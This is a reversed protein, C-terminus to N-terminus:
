TGYPSHRRLRPGVTAKNAKIEALAAHPEIAAHAVHGKEFTAEIVHTAASRSAVIDGIDTLTKLAGAGALIHAYIDEMGPATPTATWACEIKSLATGAVEPDEKLLVAATLLMGATCFGCQFGGHDIFAQQLRHLADAGALGEITVVSKGAVDSLPTRCSRRAKGDVMVTCAGCFGEGCGYKTGTLAFDTRLVWLLTRSDDTNLSVPQRNLLFEIARPM